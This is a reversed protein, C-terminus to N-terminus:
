SSTSRYQLVGHAGHYIIGAFLFQNLFRATDCMMTLVRSSIFMRNGFGDKLTERYTRLYSFSRLSPRALLNVTQEECDLCIDDM